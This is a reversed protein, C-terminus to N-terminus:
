HVLSFDVIGGRALAATGVFVMARALPLKGGMQAREHNLDARRRWTVRTRSAPKEGMMTVLAAMAHPSSASPMSRRGVSM